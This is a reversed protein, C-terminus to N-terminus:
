KESRPFRFAGCDCPNGSSALLVIAPLAALHPATSVQLIVIRRGGSGAVELQGAEILAIASMM